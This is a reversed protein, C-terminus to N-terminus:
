ILPEHKEANLTEIRIPLEQKCEESNVHHCIELIELYSFWGKKLIMKALDAFKASEPWFGEM